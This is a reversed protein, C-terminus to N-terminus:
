QPCASVWQGEITNQSDVSPMGAMEAKTHVTGTYHHPSDFDFEGSLEMNLQGKCALHWTLLPGNQSREIPACVSNVTTPIPAFTAGLDGTQEATLCKTSEHPPGVVGNTEAHGTIKWLGPEIGEAFAAPAALALVAIAALAPLAVRPAVANEEGGSRRVNPAFPAKTLGDTVM